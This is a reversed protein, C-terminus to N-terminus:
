GGKAIFQMVALFMLLVLIIFILQMNLLGYYIGLLIIPFAAIMGAWAFGLTVTGFAILGYIAVMIIGGATVPDAIGSAGAFQLILGYLYSGLRTEPNIPIVTSTGSSVDPQNSTIQFLNPRVYSLRPCAQNFIAGGDENLVYGKDAVYTLYTTAVGTRSYKYAEMDKAVLRVWNDLYTLSAANWDASLLGYESYVSGSLNQLRVKYNGGWTLAQAQTPNLYITIPSKEWLECPTSAYVTGTLGMFSLIYLTSPDENSDYYPPSVNLTEGCILWDGTVLYNKFIKANLISLVANGWVEFNYDNAPVVAAWTQGSNTSMLATGGVYSDSGSACMLVYNYRDGSPATVVIVYQKTAELSKEPILVCDYSAKDLTIANGNLAVVALDASAVVGGTYNRISVYVNGPQGVRGLILRVKYATHPSTLVTFSQSAQVNGYIPQPRGIINFYLDYDTFSVWAVGGNISRAVNGGAYISPGTFNSSLISIYNTADAAPARIVIAYKKNIDLQIENELSVEIPGGSTSVFALAYLGIALDPTTVNDTTADRISVYAYATSGALGTRQAWLVVQHVSHAQTTTFTQAIWNMGYINTWNAGYVAGSTWNGSIGNIPTASAEYVSSWTTNCGYLNNEYLIATGGTSFVMEAGLGTGYPNLAFARYYYTSSPTLGSITASFLGGGVTVTTNSSATYVGSVSGYIFGFLTSAPEGDTQNGSVSVWDNGYGSPAITTVSPVGPIKINGCDYTDSFQELVGDQAVSWASIYYTQLSTLGNLDMTATPFTVNAVWTGSVTTPCFATTNNYRIYTFDAGAGVAWSIRIATTNLATLTLGTPPDPKTLFTLAPMGYGVGLAHEAFARFYYLTGKSLPPDAGQPLPKIIDSPVGPNSTTNAWSGYIPVTGYQVGWKAIAFPTATINGRATATTEEVPNAAITNVTPPDYTMSSCSVYSASYSSNGGESAWSWASFCYTHGDILGGQMNIIGTGNYSFLGDTILTPCVGLSLDQYRVYTYLAGTGMAWDYRIATSNFTTCIFGSPAYPLTIFTLQTGYSYMSINDLTWARYYYLEGPTLPTAGGSTFNCAFSFIATKLATTNCWSGYGTTNGYQIGYATIDGGGMATVNGGVTATTNGVGSAGLTDVTAIVAYEIHLIPAQAVSGDWNWCSRQTSDVHTSRDEHDDIFIAMANGSAWGGRNVIEQVVTKFEPTLYSTGLVWAGVGDWTAQATTRNDNTAGGVDTGRRDQYNAITSFVAANDADNGVIRLNVDNLALSGSATVNMYATTITAVNPVTVGAFRAGMGGMYVGGNLYGLGAYNSAVDILWVGNWYVWCDSNSAAVIVELTPDVRVPYTLGITDVTETLVGNILSANVKVKKNTNTDSDKAQYDIKIGSGVQALGFKSEVPAKDSKLIRTFKVRTNDAVIELDTDVAINTATAKGKSFLLSPKSVSKGGISSLTLAVISGTKKDRITVSNGDITLEYPAKTIKGNNWTLDIDKWQETSSNYNDKYHIAGMSVDLAYKDNKGVKGLYYTKSNETRKEIVEQGVVYVNNYIPVGSDKVESIPNSSFYGEGEKLQQVSIQTGSGSNSADVGYPFLSMVIAVLSMLAIKNQTSFIM